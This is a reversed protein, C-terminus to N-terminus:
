QMPRAALGKRVPAAAVPAAAEAPIETPMAPASLAADTQTPQSIKDLPIISIMEPGLVKSIVGAAPTKVFDSLITKEEDSLTEIRQSVEAGYEQMMQDQEM